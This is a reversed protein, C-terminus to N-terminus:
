REVREKVYIHRTGLLAGRYSAEELIRWREGPPDNRDPTIHFRAEERKKALWGDLRIHIDRQAPKAEELAERLFEDFRHYMMWTWLGSIEKSSIGKRSLHGAAEWSAEQGALLGRTWTASLALMILSLVIVPKGLRILHPELGRGLAILTFPLLVLLYLDGITCFLLIEVFFFLTVFDLLRQSPSIRAWNERPLYRSLLLWGYLGSGIVTIFTLFWRGLATFGVLSGFNWPLDSILWDACGFVHAFVVGTAVYLVFGGAVLIPARIGTVGGESSRGPPGPSKSRILSIWHVLAIPALPLSFLVLYQLIVTPRGLINGALGGADLLYRTQLETFHIAGWNPDRMGAHLQWAAAMTPLALSLVVQWRPIRLDRFLMATVIVGPVIAACFQRTLIAAVATLSALSMFVVSSSRLGRTYFFLSMISLALASVNTMFSFSMRVILPCSLMVLTLLGATPPSLGHERALCYFAVLGLFSLVLTSLRLSSHTYGLSRAFLAGWYVQFPLNAGAFEHLKYEGTELLRRVTLAYAWDDLVPAERIPNVWVVVVVFLVIPFWLYKGSM